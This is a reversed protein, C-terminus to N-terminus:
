DCAADSQFRLKLLGAGNLLTNADFMLQEVDMIIAIAKQPNGANACAEAAKAVQVANDLKASMTKLFDTVVLDAIEHTM